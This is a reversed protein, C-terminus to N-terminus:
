VLIKGGALVTSSTPLRKNNKNWEATLDIGLSNKNFLGKIPM